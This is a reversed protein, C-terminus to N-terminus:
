LEFRRNTSFYIKLDFLNFIDRCFYNLKRILLFELTKQDSLVKECRDCRDDNVSGYTIM